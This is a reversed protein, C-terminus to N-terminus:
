ALKELYRGVRDAIAEAQETCDNLAIGYYANGGLILGPHDVLRREIRMLRALHGVHYQPIANPWRIIKVFAPKANVQMVESLEGRVAGTLQDDDWDVMQPRNWGGCLARWMVCDDPAREPFISSCWQVGLVDRKTRQPSIYGFGDLDRKPIDAKRYGIVVVAIRNYAIGAIERALDWDLDGLQRAQEYAPATMVVVDAEWADAGEGRVRWRNDHREIRRVDVGKLVNPWLTDTLKDTIVQLGERFAWMRQPQPDEGRSVAEERRIRGAQTVGRMVSGYKQEFLAVRPFCAQVSLLHPDGAHIGTVMADAIVDAVERGARRTAFEAISEDDPATKPRRRYKETLLRLKGRWSLVRSRLFAGISGPLVRLQGDLFLYRNKRSGESAALLRHQLQLDRCLQITSPKTDLFGNPGCEYRFGDQQSTQINGGTRALKELLTVTANPTTKKIRYAASLGSIGGGVVVIRRSKGNM